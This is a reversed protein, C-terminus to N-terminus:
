PVRVASPYYIGNFLFKFTGHPQARYTIEPGFLLVHGRGLAADVVAVGGALYKQGWAWGSRLPSGDKFWAIRRAARAAPDPVRFVPSNDFFVDVQDPLGYALPQTTDVSVRLVSGPVYYKDMPLARAAGDGSGDVLADRVPVGLAAGVLTAQGIAILTGGNQVFRRLAPVSRGWTLAGVRPAFEPPVRDLPLGEATAPATEVPVAETPLILVDFRRNLEGADITPAYVLEFPFEFRELLWRVWGSSPSGGYRDWLGIRVPALKLM